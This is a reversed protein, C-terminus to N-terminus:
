KQVEKLNKEPPASACCLEIKGECNVPNLFVLQKNRKLKCRGETVLKGNDGEELPPECWQFIYYYPCKSM